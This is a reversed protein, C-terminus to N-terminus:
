GLALAISPRPPAKKESSAEAARDGNAARRILADFV